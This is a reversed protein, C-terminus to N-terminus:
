PREKGEEEEEEQKNKILESERWAKTLFLFVATGAARRRIEGQMQLLPAMPHLSIEIRRPTKMDREQYSRLYNKLSEQILDVNSVILLVPHSLFSLLRSRSEVDKGHIKKKKM